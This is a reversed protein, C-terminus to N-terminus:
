HMDLPDIEQRLEETPDRGQGRTKSYWVGCVDWSGCWVVEAWSCVGTGRVEQLLAAEVM